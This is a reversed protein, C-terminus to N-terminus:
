GTSRVWDFFHEESGGSTEFSNNHEIGHGHHEAEDEEDSKIDGPTAELQTTVRFVNNGTAHRGEVLALM